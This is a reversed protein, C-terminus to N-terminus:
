QSDCKRVELQQTIPIFGKLELPVPILIELDRTRLPPILGKKDFYDEYLSVCWSGVLMVKDLIGEKKM